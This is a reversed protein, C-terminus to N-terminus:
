RTQGSGPSCMCCHEVWTLEKGAWGGGVEPGQPDKSGGFGDPPPAATAGGGPLVPPPQPKGADDGRRGWCFMRRARFWFLLGVVVAVVALVGVVGGVIM